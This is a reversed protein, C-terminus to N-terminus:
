GAPKTETKKGELVESLKKTMEATWLRNQTALIAECDLIFRQKEEETKVIGSTWDTQRAKLLRATTAYTAALFEYRNSHIISTVTAAVAAIAAVWVNADLATFTALAGLGAAGIALVLGVYRWRHLKTRNISGERRHYEVQDVVRQKVYGDLDLPAQPYSTRSEGKAPEQIDEALEETLIAQMKAGLLKPAQAKDGYPPAGAAYLFGEAKLAESVKRATIWSKEKNFRLYETSAVAAIAVMFPGAGTFLSALSTHDSLWVKVQPSVTSLVVGALGIGVIPSNWSRYNSKLKGATSSWGAQEQWLRALMESWHDKEQKAEVGQEAGVDGGKLEAKPAM